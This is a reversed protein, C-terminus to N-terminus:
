LEKILAEIWKLAYDHTDIGYKLVKMQFKFTNQYPEPIELLDLGANVEDLVVKSAKASEYMGEVLAKKHADDEILGLFYLRSLFSVEINKNDLPSDMWEFFAQKGSPTITLAKKVRGNEVAESQTIYDKSILRKTASNISGLSPSFFLSIGQEFAKNLSYLTSPQIMLLGLIVYEM